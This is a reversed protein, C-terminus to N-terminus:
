GGRQPSRRRLAWAALGLALLAATGPEPVPQANVWAYQAGDVVASVTSGAPTHLSLRATQGFDVSDGGGVWSLYPRSPSSGWTEIAAYLGFWYACRDGLSASCDADVLHITLSLRQGVLSAEFSQVTRLVGDPTGSDVHRLELYGRLGALTDHGAQSISGDLVLDLTVQVPGVHSRPVWIDFGESLEASARAVSFADVPQGGPGPQAATYTTLAQARLVGTALDVEAGAHGSLLVPNAGGPPQASAQSDFLTRAFVKGSGTVLGSPQQFPPVPWDTVVADEWRTGALTIAGTDGSGTIGAGSQATVFGAQAQSAVLLLAAAWISPRNALRLALGQRPLAHANEPM